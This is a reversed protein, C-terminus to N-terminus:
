KKRLISKLKKEQKVPQEKINWMVLIANEHINGIIFGNKSLKRLVYMMAHTVNYIPYGLKMYPIKVITKSNGIENQFKIKSEIDKLINKYIEKNQKHRNEQVYSLDKANLRENNSM